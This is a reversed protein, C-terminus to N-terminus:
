EDEGARTAREGGLSARVVRMNQAKCLVGPTRSKRQSRLPTMSTEPNGNSVSLDPFQLLSRVHLFGDFDRRAHPRRRGLGNRAVIAQRGGLKLAVRREELEVEVALAGAEVLRAVDLAVAPALDQASAGPEAAPELQDQGALEPGVDRHALRERLARGVVDVAGLPAVEDAVLALVDCGHAQRRPRRPVVRVGFGSFRHRPDARQLPRVEADVLGLHALVPRRLGLGVALEARDAQVEADVVGVLLRHGLHHLDHAARAVLGADGVDVEVGAVVVAVGVEVDELGVQHPDLLLQPQEDAELRRGM